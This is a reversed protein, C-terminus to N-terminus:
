FMVVVIAANDAGDILNASNTLNVMGSSTCVNQLAAEGIVTPPVVKAPIPLKKPMLSICRSMLAEDNSRRTMNVPMSELLIESIKSESKFPLVM